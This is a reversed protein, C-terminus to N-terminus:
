SDLCRDAALRGSSISDPIGVGRYANGALFLGAHQDVLREIQDVRELHGVHYQPMANTYRAVRTFIPDCKMGLIDTLERNVMHTLEDDSKGLLEPQMAGGVFTRLLIHGEPARGPFKRSTFSIALVNRKEIHPVVLGFADMPHSFDTLRHGSVVIASSAYEIQRLRECLDSLPPNSPDTLIEANKYAALCCIVDDFQFTQDSVSVQWRESDVNGSKRLKAVPSSCHFTVRGSDNLFQILSESLSRLGRQPTMFLGYRAGSGSTESADNRQKKQQALTGRIVSGHSREMEPFRPLTAKLSLKQPDSTYIGGVLPQVLRDLTERGFRRIVFSALTEDEDDTKRPIVAEKLLRMKGALSLIKTAMIAAPKAPAMLMFGDPVPLPRGNRLVLSRRYTEDTTVLEDLFGIERCLDIAGPKNTIFADPGMEALFGDIQETRFLGGPQEAAEFVAVRVTKDQTILRQAAALGTIGAGIVAVQKGRADGTDSAGIM